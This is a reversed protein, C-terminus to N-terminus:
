KQKRRNANVRKNGERRKTIAMKIHHLKNGIFELKGQKKGKLSTAKPTLPTDENM